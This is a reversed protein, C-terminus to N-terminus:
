KTSFFEASNEESIKRPFFTRFIPQLSERCYVVEEASEEARGHRGGQAGERDVPGELAHGRQFLHSTSGLCPSWVLKQFFDGLIYGLGHKTLILVNIKCRSFTAVWNPSSRYNKSFGVWTILQEIPSFEGL